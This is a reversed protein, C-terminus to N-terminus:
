DRIMGPLGINSQAAHYMRLVDDAGPPGNRTKKEVEASAIM